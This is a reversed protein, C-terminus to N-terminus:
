VKCYRYLNKIEFAIKKFYFGSGSEQRVQVALKDDHTNGFSVKIDVVETFEQGDIEDNLEYKATVGNETEQVEVPRLALVEVGIVESEDEIPIKKNKM